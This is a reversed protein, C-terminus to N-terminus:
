YHHGMPWYRWTTQEKSAATKRLWPGNETEQKSYAWATSPWDCPLNSWYGSRHNASCLRLKILALSLFRAWVMAETEIYWRLDCKYRKWENAPWEGPVQSLLWFLISENAWPLHSQIKLNTIKLSVDIISINVMEQSITMLGIGFSRM